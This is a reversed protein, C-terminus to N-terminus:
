FGIIERQIIPWKSYKKWSKTIVTQVTITFKLGFSEILVGVMLLTLVFFM